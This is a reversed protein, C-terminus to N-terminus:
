ISGFVRAPVGIEEVNNFHRFYNRRRNIQFCSRVSVWVYRGHQGTPLRLLQCFADLYIQLMSAANKVLYQAAAPGVLRQM